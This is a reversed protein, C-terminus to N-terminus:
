RASRESILASTHEPAFGLSELYGPSENDVRQRFFVSLIQYSVPLFEGGIPNVGLLGGQFPRRPGVRDDM